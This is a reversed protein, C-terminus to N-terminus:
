EWSSCMWQPSPVSLWSCYFSHALNDIFRDELQSIVHSLFEDFLTIRFYDEPSSVAPNSRRVLRGVIRPTSLEFLDGHFQQGFKITEAFLSNFQNSSDEWKRWPLCSQHLRSFHTPLMLQECRSSQRLSESPTCLASFFTSFLRFSHLSFNFSFGMPRPSLNVM